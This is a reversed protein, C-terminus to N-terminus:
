QKFEWGEFSDLIEKEAKIENNIKEKIRAIAKETIYKKIKEENIVEQYVKVYDSYMRPASSVGWARVTDLQIDIKRSNEIERLEDIKREIRM